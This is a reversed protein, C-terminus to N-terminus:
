PRRGPRRAFLGWRRSEHVVLRVNLKCAPRTPRAYGEATAAVDLEVTTLDLLGLEDAAMPALTTITKLYGRCVDCTEVRRTEPTGDPVLAGLREHETTDCYPCRLWATDWDAACRLCRLCRARELGRAEALLPWGGCVPCYGARWTPPVQTAWREACARLLPVPAVAAVAQLAGADAGLSDALAVVREADQALGAEFLTALRETDAARAADALSGAPGGGGAARELLTVLWRRLRPAQVVVTAGALLPTRGDAAPTEAPVAERWGADNAAERVTDLVVFWPRWEARSRALDALAPPALTV